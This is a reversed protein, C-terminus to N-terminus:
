CCSHADTSSIGMAQIAEVEQEYINVGRHLKTINFIVQVPPTIACLNLEGGGKRLRHCLSVIFGLGSSDVFSVDALNFVVSEMDEDRFVQKLSDITGADLRGKLRFVSVGDIMEQNFSICM